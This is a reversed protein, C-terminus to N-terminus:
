KEDNSLMNVVSSVLIIGKITCANIRGLYDWTVDKSGHCFCELKYKQYM